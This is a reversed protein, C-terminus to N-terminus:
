MAHNDAQAKRASFKVGKEPLKLAQAALQAINWLVHKIIARKARKWFHQKENKDCFVTWLQNCSLQASRCESLFSTQWLQCNDRQPITRKRLKVKRLQRRACNERQTITKQAITKKRLQRKACNDRQKTTKQTITKKRLQEKACNYKQAITNRRM